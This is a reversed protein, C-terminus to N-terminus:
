ISVDEEAPIGEIVEVKFHEGMEKFKAIAEDRSVVRRAFAQNTKLLKRMEKEIAPLDKDSLKVDKPFAFDYYFGDKIVPGITVQTGPYLNQVAFALLHATSHRIM